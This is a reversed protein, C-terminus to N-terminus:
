LSNRADGNHFCDSYFKTSLFVNKPCVERFQEQTFEERQERNQLNYCDGIKENFKWYEGYVSKCFGDQEVLVPLNSSGGIKLTLISSFILFIFTLLLFKELSIEKM